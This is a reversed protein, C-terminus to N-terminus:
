VAAYRKLEQTTDDDILSDSVWVNEVASLKISSGPVHLAAYHNLEDFVYNIECETLEQEKAERAWHARIEPSAMKTIWDDNSRIAGSMLRIRKESLSCIDNKTATYMTHVSFM